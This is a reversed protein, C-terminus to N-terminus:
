GGRDSSSVFECDGAAAANDAKSIGACRGRSDAVESSSDEKLVRERCAVARATVVAAEISAAVDLPPAEGVVRLAGKKECGESVTLLPLLWLGPLRM